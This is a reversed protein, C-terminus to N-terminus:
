RPLGTDSLGLERLKRYLTRESVGLIRAAEARHSGCKRMVAEIHRQELVALPLDADPSVIPPGQGRLVEAVDESSIRPGPRFVLLREITGILQRVNGPWDYASLARLASDDLTTATERNRTARAFFHAALFPIDERRERLPPVVIKLPVLRYYLDERFTGARVADELRRNTASVVRVEVQIERMGGMRRFTGSELVRLLKAQVRPTVEGMEDLYLTGGDAVEFLGHKREVAGTFAGKEHGFLESHMLEDSLAACDVVVLPKERAPSAQHLRRAVLEKGSGSEGIILVNSRSQAASEIEAVLRQFPASRGILEVPPHALGRALIDNREKLRRTELARGIALELEDLDCPKQLYDAAGLKMAQIATQVTGHGTLIIVESAGRERINKLVALGDDAALRLDLLVVDPESSGLAAKVQAADAWEDVRFGSARLEAALSGRFADDDDVVWLHASPKARDVM